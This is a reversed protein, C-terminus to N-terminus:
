IKKRKNTKSSQTERKKSLPNTLVLYGAQLSTANSPEIGFDSGLSNSSTRSSDIRNYLDETNSPDLLGPDSHLAMLAEADLFAPAPSCGQQLDASLPHKKQDFDDLKQKMHELLQKYEKIAHNVKKHYQSDRIKLKGALEEELTKEVENINRVSEVNIYTITNNRYSPKNTLKSEFDKLREKIGGIFNGLRYKATYATTQQTPFGDFISNLKCLKEQCIKIGDNIYKYHYPSIKKSRYEAETQLKVKQIKEKSEIKLYKRLSWYNRQKKLRSLFGLSRKEIGTKLHVLMGNAKSIPSNKNQQESIAYFREKLKQFLEECQNNYQNIYRYDSENIKKSRFAEEIQVKLEQIKQRFSKEIYKRTRSHNKERKSESQINELRTTLGGMLRGFDNEILYLFKNNNEKKNPMKQHKEKKTCVTSREKDFRIYFSM